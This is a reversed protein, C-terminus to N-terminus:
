KKNTMAVLYNLISEEEEKNLTPNNQNMYIAMQPVIEKWQTETFSTPNKLDHCNACKAEFHKKGESLKATIANDLTPTTTEAETVVPTAVKSATCGVMLISSLILISNKM